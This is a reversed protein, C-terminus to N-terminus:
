LDGSAGGGGFDGGGFGGGSDSGSSSGWDSGSDSPGTWGGSSSSGGGGGGGKKSAFTVILGIVVLIVIVAIVVGPDVGSDPQDTRGVARDSAKLGAVQVDADAAVEAAIARYGAEVSGAVDGAQFLPKIVDSIIAGAKSDPIAGELGYGVEIRAKRDSPAIFLVVGRDKAEDGVGLERARRIGYEEISEGGLSRVTVVAVEAGDTADELASGLEDIRREVASPVVNAEDIVYDSSASAAAPAACLVVMALALSAGVRRISSPTRM